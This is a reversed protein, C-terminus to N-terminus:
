APMDAPSSPALPDTSTATNPGTESLMKRALERYESLRALLSFGLHLSVVEEYLQLVTGPEQIQQEIASWMTIPMQAGPAQYSVVCGLLEDLLPKVEHWPAKGLGTIVSGLGMVMFGQVGAQMIHPPVEMGARALLQMARLFWNSAPIAAMERLQFVGGNDRGERAVVFTAERRM